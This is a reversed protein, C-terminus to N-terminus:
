RSWVPLEVGNFVLGVMRSFANLPLNQYASMQWPKLPGGTGGDCLGYKDVDVFEESEALPQLILDSDIESYCNHM